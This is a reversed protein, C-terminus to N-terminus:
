DCTLVMSLPFLKVELDGQIDFVADSLTYDFNWDNRRCYLDLLSQYIGSNQLGKLSTELDYKLRRYCSCLLGFLIKLVRDSPPADFDTQKYIRRYELANRDHNFVIDDRMFQWFCDIYTPSSDLRFNSLAYRWLGTLHKALQKFSRLDEGLGRAFQAIVSHHFRAEIRYVDVEKNFIPKGLDFEETATLDSNILKTSYISHWYDQVHQNKAILKTKNYASFQLSGASGFTFTEGKGYVTAISHNEFEMETEGSYKQIKNARTVMRHDLDNPPKWGQQDCCLHVAVGTYEKMHIFIDAIEDICNQLLDLHKDLIFHPSLEIKLHHGDYKPETHFAGLLVTVGLDRNNLSYRYGGRRASAIQWDYGAIKVTYIGAKYANEVFEFRDLKLFGKYLQKVTDVGVHLVSISRSDWEKGQSTVFYEGFESAMSADFFDNRSYRENNRGKITAM